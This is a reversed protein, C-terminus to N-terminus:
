YIYKNEKSIPYIVRSLVVIKKMPHHSKKKFHIESNSSDIKLKPQPCVHRTVAQHNKIKKQYTFVSYQACRVAIKLSTSEQM